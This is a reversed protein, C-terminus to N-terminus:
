RAAAWRVGFTRPLRDIDGLMAEIQPNSQVTPRSLYLKPVRVIEADGPADTERCTVVVLDEPHELLRRTESRTQAEALL